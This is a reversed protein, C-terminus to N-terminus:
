LILNRNKLIQFFSDFEECILMIEKKDQPYISIKDPITNFNIVFKPDYDYNKPYTYQFDKINSLCPDFINALEMKNEIYVEFSRALIERENCFYEKYYGTTNYLMNTYKKTDLCSSYFNTHEGDPNGNKYLIANKLSTAISNNNQTTSFWEGFFNSEKTGLSDDLFHFWEHAISSVKKPNNNLKIKKTNAFYSYSALSYENDETFNNTFVISLTDNLSINNHSINLLFCLNNLSNDLIYILEIKTKFDLNGEFIINEIKFKKQTKRLLSKLIIFNVIKM